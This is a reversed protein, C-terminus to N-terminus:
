GDVRTGAHMELVDSLGVFVKEQDANLASRRRHALSLTFSMVTDM